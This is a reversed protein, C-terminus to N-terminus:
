MKRLPSLFIISGALVVAVTSLLHTMSDGSGQMMMGGVLGGLPLTIYSIATLAGEVRGYIQNDVTQQKYTNLIVMGMTLSGTWIGLGLGAGWWSPVLAILLSGIGGGFLMFSGLLLGKPYKKILRMIVLSGAIGFVGSFSYVIGTLYGNLHLVDRLYFMLTSMVLAMAFNTLMSTVAVVRLNPNGFLYVFGEKMDAWVTKAERNSSSHEVEGILLVSFAMLLYSVAGVMLASYAGVTGLLFGALTPGGLRAINEVLQMRSNSKMLQDQAVIRPVVAMLSVDVFFSFVSLLFGILFLYPLVLLGAFYLLPISMVLLMRIVDSVMMIKRRNFRDILVGGFPMLVIFPLMEVAFVSGLVVSSGTLDYAIWPLSLLYIYGGLRSMLRGFLLMSFRMQPQEQMRVQLSGYM